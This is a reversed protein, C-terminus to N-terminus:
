PKLGPPIPSGVRYEVGGAHRAVPVIVGALRLCYAVRQAAWRSRRLQRAVDATTFPEPLGAPLLAVLDPADRIPVRDVVALLRREVVMWGRRRWSGGPGRRRIEEEETLLVELEFGPLQLLRPFSVLEVCVDAPDGHRPSRRRGLPTGDDALRVIWRDLAVPHVVRVRHGHDLLATLKRKMSPFGRTQVEILLDGRVIDVVFGDVAVELRDGPRSYWQKLSAHLPKERLTGIGAGGAM